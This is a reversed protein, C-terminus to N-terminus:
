VSAGTEATATFKELLVPCYSLKAKRLGEIGLDEERNLWQVEPENESVWRAFARNIMSYAGDYEALAKEFHVDYVTENLRSGVTFAILRGDVLLRLGRVGLADMNELVRRLTGRERSMDEARGAYWAEGFALCQAADGSTLPLLEYDYEAEFRNCHNRKAQMKRGSLGALQSVPYLYDYSDRDPAFDFAGPLIRELEGCEDATVCLLRLPNGREAADQALLKLVPMVDGAGIPYLYSDDYRVCIHDGVRAAGGHGAMWGFINVFSSESGSRGAAFLLPEFEARNAPTVPSFDIM